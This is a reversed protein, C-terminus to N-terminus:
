SPCVGFYWTVYKKLRTTKRRGLDRSMQCWTRDSGDAEFWGNVCAILRLVVTDDPNTTMHRHLVVSTDNCNAYMLMADFAIKSWCLLEWISNDMVEYTWPRLDIIIKSVLNPLSSLHCFFFHLLNTHLEGIVFGWNTLIQSCTTLSCSLWSPVGPAAICMLIVESRTNDHWVPHMESNCVWVVILTKM